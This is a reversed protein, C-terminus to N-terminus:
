KIKKSNIGKIIKELPPYKEFAGSIMSIIGLTFAQLFLETEGFEEKQGILIYCEYEKDLMKKIKKTIM